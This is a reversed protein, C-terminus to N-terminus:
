KLIFDIYILSLIYNLHVILLLYKIGSCEFNKLLDENSLIQCCFLSSEDTKCKCKNQTPCAEGPQSYCSALENCRIIKM